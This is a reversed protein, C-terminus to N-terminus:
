VFNNNFTNTGTWTNNLSLGGKAAINNLMTTSFNPDNGIATALEYLTDLSGPAGNLLSSVKSDVYTSVYNQSALTNNLQILQTPTITYSIGNLMIIINGNTDTYTTIGDTTTSTENGLYLNGKVTLNRDFIGNAQVSGDIYDSNEFNGYITTSKFKNFTLSM